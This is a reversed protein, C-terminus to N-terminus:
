GASNGGDVALMAGTMFSAEESAAFCVVRAVEQPTAVRGMPIAEGLAALRAAHDLGPIASELMSTDTDGPCVANVRIGQRAHDLAMSRTLQVVAGKSVGYALAGRAGVLGWDSAINVIAGGGEPIMARVAARSMRFVSTVNIELTAAWQDDSCQTIDGRHLIGANNVLVDIRGFHRAAAALLAEAAGPVTVDAAEFEARGGDGVIAQRLELGARANRGTLLVAAGREAFLRAIASGIGSTAGTVLVSKGTFDRSM